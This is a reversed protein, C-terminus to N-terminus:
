RYKEELRAQLWLTRAREARVRGLRDEPSLKEIHKYVPEGERIIEVLEEEARRQDEEALRDLEDQSEGPLPGGLARALQGNRREELARREMELFQEWGVKERPDAGQGSTRSEPPAHLEAGLPHRQRWDEEAAQRVGEKTAGRASFAAVFYGDARRLVLIDPDSEDLVYAPRLWPPLEHMGIRTPMHSSTEKELVM